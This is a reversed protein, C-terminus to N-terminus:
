LVREAPNERFLSFAAATIVSVTPMTM